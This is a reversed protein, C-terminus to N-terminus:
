KRKYKKENVAGTYDFTHRDRSKNQEEDGDDREIKTLLVFITVTIAAVVGSFLFILRYNVDTNDGSTQTEFLESLEEASLTDSCVNVRSLELTVNTDSYVMIGIYDTISRTDYGDLPCTLTYEVGYELDDVYYEARTESNGVVFVVSDNSEDDSESDASANNILSITFEVSSIDTFDVSHSFNRLTIGASGSGDHKFDVKLVRSDGSTSNEGCSSADSVCSEVGGGAIWGDAHYKDSFDYLCSVAGDSDATDSNKRIAASDFVHGTAEDSQKLVSYLDRSNKLSTKDLSFFVCKIRNGSLSSATSIFLQATYDALPIGASEDTRTMAIDATSPTCLYVIGDVTGCELEGIIRVSNEAGGSTNDSLIDYDSMLVFPIKGIEALRAAFMTALPVVCTDTDAIPIIIIKSSGDTNAADYIGRFFLALRAAYDELEYDEDSYLDIDDGVAFGYVSPYRSSLFGVATYIMNTDDSLYKGDSLTLRIYVRVGATVYFEIESDLEGIKERDFEIVEGMYHASLTKESDSDALIDELCVETMVASINSEFAGVPTPNYLGIISTTESHYVAQGADPFRPTSMPIINGDQTCIGAFYMMGVSDSVDATYEFVTTFKISGIEEAYSLDNMHEAPLSYFHIMGDCSRSYEGIASREMGGSFTLESSSRTIKSLQGIGSVAQLPSTGFHRIKVYDLTFYVDCEVNDFTLTYSSPKVSPNLPLVFAGINDNLSIKKSQALEEGGDGYFTMTVSGSLIGDVGIEVYLRGNPADFISDDTVAFSANLVAKKSNSDPKIRGSRQICVGESADLSLTLYKDASVFSTNTNKSIYPSSVRINAPIEEDYSVTILLHSANGTMERIDMSYLNWGVGASTESMAKGDSSYLVASVTYKIDNDGIIAIGFYLTSYETLNYRDGSLDLMLETKRSDETEGDPEGVITFVYPIGSRERFGSSSTLGYFYWNSEDLTFVSLSASPSPYFTPAEDGDYGTASFALSVTDSAGVCYPMIIILVLLIVSFFLKKPM